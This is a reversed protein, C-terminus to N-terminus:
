SPAAMSRSARASVSLYTGYFNSPTAQLGGFARQCGVLPRKSQVFREPVCDFAVGRQWKLKELAYRERLYARAAVM